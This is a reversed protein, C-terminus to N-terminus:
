LILIKSNILTNSKDEFPAAYWLDCDQPLVKRLEKALAMGRAHYDSWDKHYPTRTESALVIPHIERQWKALEPMVIKEEKKDYFTDDLEGSDYITIDYGTTLDEGLSDYDPCIQLIHRVLPKRGLHTKNIYCEILPSKFANYMEMRLSIDSHNQKESSQNLAFSLLGEYLARITEKYDCYGVIIPYLVFGNPIIKVLAFEKYKYAYGHERKEIGDAISVREIHIVTDSSDFTLEIDTKDSYVLCEFQHRIKNYDSDWDTLFTKYTRNGIGVKYQDNKCPMFIFQETTIESAQVCYPSPCLAEIELQNCCMELHDLEVMEYAIKYGAKMMHYLHTIRKQIRFVYHSFRFHLIEYYSKEACMVRWVFACQDKIITIDYDVGHDSLKLYCEDEFLSSVLDVPNVQLKTQNVVVCIGTVGNSEHLLLPFPVCQDEVLAVMYQRRANDSDAKGVKSWIINGNLM